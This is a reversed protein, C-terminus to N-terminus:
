IIIAYSEKIVSHVKIGIRLCFYAYEIRIRGCSGKHRASESTTSTNNSRLVFLPQAILEYAIAQIPHRRGVRLRPADRARRQGDLDVEIRHRSCAMATKPSAASSRHWLEQGRDM